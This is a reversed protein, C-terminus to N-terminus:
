GKRCQIRGYQLIIHDILRSAESRSLEELRINLEIRHYKMLDNLYGKQSNTIPNEKKVSYIMKQALFVQPQAACFEAQMKRFIEHASRADDLARHSSGPDVRYHACMAPLTRSSMDPLVRRAIKLTDIGDKEFALGCRAANQKLISYDFQVNHGLIPYGECFETLRRMVEDLPKGEKQMEDTIGTLEQIRWPIARGTNILSDYVELIKGSEVKVAGIELLCDKVPDLGTTEVDLAVYRDMM